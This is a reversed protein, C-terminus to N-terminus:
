QSRLAAIWAALNGRRKAGRLSSLSPTMALAARCDMSGSQWTAESRAIVFPFADNRACRPLGHQWIAV